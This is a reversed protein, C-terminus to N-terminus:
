LVEYAYRYHPKDYGAYLYQLVRLSHMRRECNLISCRPNQRVHKKGSGEKKRVLQRNNPIKVTISTLMETNTGSEDMPWNENYEKYQVTCQVHMLYIIDYSTCLVTRTSWHLLHYLSPANFEFNGVCVHVM